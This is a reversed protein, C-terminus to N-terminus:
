SIISVGNRDYKVIKPMLGLPDQNVAIVDKNQLLERIEDSVDNLQTSMLMPSQLMAWMGFCVQSEDYSLGYNGLSMMDLDNWAGPGIHPGMKKVNQVYYDIQYKIGGFSDDLDGGNRWM